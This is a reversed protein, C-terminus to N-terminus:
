VANTHPNKETNIPENLFSGLIIFLKSISPLFIIQPKPPTQSKPSSIFPAQNGTNKEQM